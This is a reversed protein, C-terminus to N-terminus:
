REVNEQEKNREQIWRIAARVLIDDTPDHCEGLKHAYSIAASVRKTSGLTRGNVSDELLFAAVTEPAAPRSRIGIEACWRSFRKMDQKYTRATSPSKTALDELQKELIHELGARHTERVECEYQDQAIQFQEAQVRLKWNQIIALIQNGADIQEAPLAGVRAIEDPTTPLLGTM